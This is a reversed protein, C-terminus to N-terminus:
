LNAPCTYTNGNGDKHVNATEGETVTVKDVIPHYGDPPTVDVDYVYYFDYPNVKVKSWPHINYNGPKTTLNHDTCNYIYTPVAPDVHIVPLGPINGNVDAYSTMNSIWATSGSQSLNVLLWDGKEDRGIVGYSQGKLFYGIINYEVGPGRHITLNGRTAMIVFGGMAPTLTQQSTQLTPVVFTTPQVEITMTATPFIIEATPQTTSELSAAIQTLIVPDITPAVTDVSKQACGTALLGSCVLLILIKKM